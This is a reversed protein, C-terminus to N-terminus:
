VSTLADTLIYIDDFAVVVAAGAQTHKVQWGIFIWNSFLWQLLFFSGACILFFTALFFLLDANKENSWWHMNLSVDVILM